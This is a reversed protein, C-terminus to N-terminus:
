NRLFQGLIFIYNELCKLSTEEHNTHNYLTPIQLTAGKIEPSLTQVTGLEMIGLDNTTGGKKTIYENKILYPINNKECVACLKEFLNTNFIAKKDRKRLVIIGRKIIEKELFHTTDLVLLLDKKVELKSLIINANEGIEEKGAFIAKGEWGNAFLEYIVAICLVNDLQGKIQKNFFSNRCSFLAIPRPGVLDPHASDSEFFLKNTKKEIQGTKLSGEWLVHGKEPHYSFVKEQSFDDGAKLLSDIKKVPKDLIEKWYSYAYYIQNKHHVFGHRDAHASLVFKSKNPNKEIVLCDKTRKTKCGLAAFDQELHKLFPTEFGIVSPIKLYESTKQIIRNINM